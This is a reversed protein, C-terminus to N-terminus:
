GKRMRVAIVLGIVMAIAILMWCALRAGELLYLYASYASHTFVAYLDGDQEVLFRMFESEHDISIHCILSRLTCDGLASAQTDAIYQFRAACQESVASVRLPTGNVEVTDGISAGLREALHKELMVGDRTIPLANKKQDEVSILRTNERVTAVKARETHGNLFFSASYYDM